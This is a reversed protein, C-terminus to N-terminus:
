KPVMGEYLKDFPVNWYLYIKAFNESEEQYKSAHIGLSMEMGLYLPLSTIKSSLPMQGRLLVRKSRLPESIGYCIESFWEPSSAFRIGGRYKYYVNRSGSQADEALDFMTAQISLIPGVYTRPSGDSELPTRKMPLYYFLETVMLRDKESFSINSTNYIKGVQENSGILKVSMSLEHWYKWSLESYSEPVRLRAFRRDLTYSARPFGEEFVKDMSVYEYGFSFSSYYNSYDDYTLGRIRDSLMIVNAIKSYEKDLGDLSNMVRSRTTMSQDTANLVERYKAEEIRIKRSRIRLAEELEFLQARGQDTSIGQDLGKLCKVKAVLKDVSGDLTHSDCGADGYALGSIMASAFVVAVLVVLMRKM